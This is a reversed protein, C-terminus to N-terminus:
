EPTYRLVSTTREEVTMKKWELMRRVCRELQKAAGDETSCYYAVVWEGRWLQLVRWSPEGTIRFQQRVVQEELDIGM